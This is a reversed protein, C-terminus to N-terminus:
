RHAAREDEGISDPRISEIHRDDVVALHIAVARERHLQGARRRRSLEYRGAHLGHRDNVIIGAQTEGARSIRNQLAAHRRGDGHQPNVVGVDRRRDVKRGGISRAHGTYVVNRGIARRNEGVTFGAFGEGHQHDVVGRQHLRIFGHKQLQGVRDIADENRGGGGREGDM